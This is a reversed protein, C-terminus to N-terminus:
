LNWFHGILTRRYRGTLNTTGKEVKILNVQQFIFGNLGIKNGLKTTYFDLISFRIRTEQILHKITCTVFINFCNLEQLNQEFLKM